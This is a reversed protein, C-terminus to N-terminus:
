AREHPPPVIPTIRLVRLREAASELALYIESLPAANSVAFMMQGQPDIGVLCAHELQAHLLRQVVEALATQPTPKIRKGSKIDYVNDLAM